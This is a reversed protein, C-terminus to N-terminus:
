RGQGSLTPDVNRGGPFDSPCYEPGRLLGARSLDFRIKKELLAEFVPRVRALDEAKIDKFNEVTILAPDIKKRALCIDGARRPPLDGIVDAKVTLFVSAADPSRGISSGIIYGHYANSGSMDAHEVKDRLIVIASVGNGTLINQYTDVWDRALGNRNQFNEDEGARIADISKQDLKVDVVQYGSQDLLKKTESKAFGDLNWDNALRNNYNGFVTIGRHLNTIEPTLVTTLGIRAGSQVSVTQYTQQAACGPLSFAAIALVAISFIRESVFRFFSM